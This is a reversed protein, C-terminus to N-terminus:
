GLIAGRKEFLKRTKEVIRLFGNDINAVNEMDFWEADNVEYLDINIDCRGNLISLYRFDFHLHEPENKRANSPIKQVDVDLPLEANSDDIPLYIVNEVGTEECLEREAAGRITQDSEEIHGGPQLFRDLFKHHILLFSALYKDVLMASATIHGFFNKRAACSERTRLLEEAKKKIKKDPYIKLYQDIISSINEKNIM